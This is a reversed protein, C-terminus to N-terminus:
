PRRRVGMEDQDATLDLGALCVCSPMLSVYGEYVPATHSAGDGFDMAPGSDARVFCQVHQKFLLMAFIIQTLSKADGEHNAAGDHHLTEFQSGDDLDQSLDHFIRSM